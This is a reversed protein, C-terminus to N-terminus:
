GICCRGLLVWCLLLPHRHWQPACPLRGHLVGNPVGNLLLVVVVVVVWAVLAGM